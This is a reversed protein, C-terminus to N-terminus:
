VKCHPARDRAIRFGPGNSVPGQNVARREPLRSLNM